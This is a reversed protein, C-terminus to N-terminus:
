ALFLGAIDLVAQKSLPEDFAESVNEASISSVSPVNVGLQMTEAEGNYVAQTAAPMGAGREDLTIWGKLGRIRRVVAAHRAEVAHIKLAATLVDSNSVLNGAQGKYARVGTDEFAQSLALFTQFNTNWDPFNGGATFDFNPKSVPTAGLSQLATKLFNVHAVENDRVQTFFTRTDGFNLGSANLGQMYFESELYELTLAFNLVDAISGSSQGYAKKFMTGMAIPVAAMAVKKGFKGFDGFAKRRSSLRDYVENDVKEIDQIIRFINM